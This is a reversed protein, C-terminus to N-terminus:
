FFVTFTSNKFVFISHDAVGFAGADLEAFQKIFICNRVDAIAVQTTFMTGGMLGYNNHFISSDETYNSGFMALTGIKRLLIFLYIYSFGKNEGWGDLYKNNRGRYNSYQADVGGVMVLVSSTGIKNGFYSRAIGNQFVNNFSDISFELELDIFAGWDALGKDFFNGSINVYVLISHTKVRISGGM